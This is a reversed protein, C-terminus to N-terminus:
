RKSYIADLIVKKIEQFKRSRLGYLRACFSTIISIMDEVLEQMADKDIENEVVEIRGGYSEVISELYKFGFRALRDKFEVIIVNAKDDKIMRLARWLKRRNENLGSAIEKLELVIEYGREKAYSRLRELQRELHDKQEYSSVRAYLIAREKEVPEIGLLRNVESEPILWRGAPNKIAKIKGQYIWRKVTIFSVKLLRAVEGTRYYREERIM